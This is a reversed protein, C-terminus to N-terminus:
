RRRARGPSRRRVAALQRRREFGRVGGFSGRKDGAHVTDRHRAGARHGSSACQAPHCGARGAGWWGVLLAVCGGGLLSAGTIASIIGTRIKM